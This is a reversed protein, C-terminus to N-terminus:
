KRGFVSTYPSRYPNGGSGNDDQSGGVSQPEQTSKRIAEARDELITQLSSDDLNVYTNILSETLDGAGLEKAKAIVEEKREVIRKEELLEDREKTVADMAETSEAITSELEKVKTESADLQDKLEKQSAKAHEEMLDPYKELLEKLTMEKAEFLSKNTAAETVIAVSNVKHVRKIRDIGGEFAIEANERSVEHSMQLVQPNNNADDWVQEFFSSGKNLHWDGYVGRGKRRCNRLVGIRDRYDTTGHGFHVPVGEYLRACDELALDEYIRGNNSKYGLVKVNRIVGAEKDTDLRHKGSGQAVSETLLAEKGM